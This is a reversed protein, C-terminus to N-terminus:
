CMDPRSYGYLVCSAVNTEDSSLQRIRSGPALNPVVIQVFEDDDSTRFLRGSETVVLSYFWSSCFKNLPATDARLHHFPCCCVISIREDFPFRLLVPELCVRAESELGFRYRVNSSPSVMSLLSSLAIYRKDTADGWGLVCSGCSESLRRYLEKWTESAQPKSAGSHDRMCLTQWFFQDALVTNLFRSCRSLFGIGPLDLDMAIRILIEEPLSRILIM